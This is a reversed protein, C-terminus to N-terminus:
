MRGVLVPRGTALREEVGEFGPHAATTLRLGTDDLVGMVQISVNRREHAPVSDLLSLWIRLDHGDSVHFIAESGSCCLGAETLARVTEARLDAVMRKDIEHAAAYIAQCLKYAACSATEVEITYPGLSVTGARPDYGFGSFARAVDRLAEGQQVRQKQPGHGKGRSWQDFHALANRMHRIGPLANEFQQREEALAQGVAPDMSLENLAAQELEEATLLHRLAFILQRADIQESSFPHTWREEGERMRLITLDVAHLGWQAESVAIAYPNDAPSWDDLPTDTM